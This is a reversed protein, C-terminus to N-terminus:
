NNSFPKPSIVPPFPPMPIQQNELQLANPTYVTINLRYSVPFCVTSCNRRWNFNTTDILLTNNNVSTKISNLNPHGYYNFAISYKSSYVFNTTGFDLGDMNVNSFSSLTRVTTHTNAQYANRVNPYVDATLAGGVALGIFILGALVGTVWTKIPWKRRYIAIGFLIIFIAILALVVLTIDLLLHETLGIPFINNKIWDNGRVLYYTEATIIGFVIGLGSAVFGIGIIKLIIRFISNIPGSVRGNVRRAAGKIDAQEVIEKLSEVTVAKGAMQLRESSTKAEPVLLWLLIYLLIGWGVTIFTFIIFLLRILLVDIGFYKSLGAAVGAIIANDTDRFLHKNNDSPANADIEEEDDDKFDSPSGLQSKLYEIDKPLIVKESSIGRETLLESMRLEIENVVEKDKIQKSIAELYAKLERHADVSITFAQSALHIKAVENM